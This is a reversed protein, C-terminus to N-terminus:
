RAACPDGSSVRSGSLDQIVRHEIASLLSEARGGTASIDIVEVGLKSAHARVADGDEGRPLDMKNLVCIDGGCVLSAAARWAGTDVSGDVVWLRLAATEAAATARRAGEAEVADDSERLGATDSLVVRYGAVTLVAEIIDRTTGPKPNVIAVDRVM